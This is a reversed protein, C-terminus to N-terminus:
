NYTPVTHEAVYKDYNSSYITGNLSRIYDACIDRYLYTNGNKQLTGLVEMNSSSHDFYDYIRDSNTHWLLYDIVAITYWTNTNM